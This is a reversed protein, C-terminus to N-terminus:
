HRMVGLTRLQGNLHEKEKALQDMEWLTAALNAQVAGKIGQCNHGGKLLNHPQSSLHQLSTSPRVEGLMKMLRNELNELQPDSSAKVVEVGPVYRRLTEKGKTQGELARNLEDVM